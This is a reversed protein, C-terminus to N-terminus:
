LNPGKGKAKDYWKVISTDVVRNSLITHACVKMYCGFSLIPMKLFLKNSLFTHACVKMYYTQMDRLLRFAILHRRIM